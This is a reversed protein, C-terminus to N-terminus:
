AYMKIVDPAVSLVQLFLWCSVSQLIKDVYLRRYLSGMATRTNFPGLLSVSIYLVGGFHHKSLNFNRHPTKLRNHFPGFKIISVEKHGVFSYMATLLLVSWKLMTVEFSTVVEMHYTDSLAACWQTPICLQAQILWCKPSKWSLAQSPKVWCPLWASWPIQKEVM